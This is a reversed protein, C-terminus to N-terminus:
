ILGSWDQDWAREGGGRCFFRRPIGSTRGMGLDMFDRSLDTNPLTRGVDFAILFREELTSRLLLFM